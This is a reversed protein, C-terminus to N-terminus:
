AVRQPAEVPAAEPLGDRWRVRVPVPGVGEQFVVTTEAEDPGILGTWAMAFATGVTPHGAFPLEVKPTFIRLPRAGDPGDPKGLFATEPLNLEGAVSQMQEPTLGEPELFVALQNGKFKEEAFVDVILYRTGRM